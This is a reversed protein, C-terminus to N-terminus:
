NIYTIKYKPFKVQYVHPFNQINRKHDKFNEPSVEEVGAEALWYFISDSSVYGDKVKYMENGVDINFQQKLFEVQEDTFQM